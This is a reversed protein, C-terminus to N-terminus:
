KQPKQWMMALHTPHHSHLPAFGLGTYFAIASYNDSRVHLRVTRNTRAAEDLLPQVLRRGIGARRHAKVIAIDILRIELTGRDVHLTGIPRGALTAVLHESRPYDNRYADQRAAFQANLFAARQAPSLGSADLEDARTEAYLKRLFDDDNRTAPRLALDPPHAM